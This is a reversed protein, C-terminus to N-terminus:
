PSPRKRAELVKKLAASACSLNEGSPCASSTRVCTSTSVPPLDYSPAEPRMCMSADPSADTILSGFSPGIWSTCHAGSELSNRAKNPKEGGRAHRKEPPLPWLTSCSKPSSARLVTQQAGCPREKMRAPKPLRPPSSEKQSRFVSRHREVTSAWMVTAKSHDGSERAKRVATSHGRRRTSFPTLSQDGEPASSCCWGCSSSVM